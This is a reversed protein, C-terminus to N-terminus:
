ELLHIWEDLLRECGYWNDPSAFMSHECDVNLVEAGAFSAACVPTVGDGVVNAEGCVAAYSLGAFVQAFSGDGFSRGHVGTGALCVSHHVLHSVDCQEQVFRLIGRTQDVSGEPPPLHPTGLTVLASISPPDERLALYARAIWGGASHGVLNLAPVFDNDDTDDNDVVLEAIAADILSFYWDLFPLPQLKGQWYEPTFFGRANLLWNWRQVQVIAVRAHGRARLSAALPLYDFHSNGLGPLILIPAHSPPASSTVSPIPPVPHTSPTPAPTCSRAVRWSSPLSLPSRRTSKNLRYHPVSPIAAPVTPSLFAAPATVHHAPIVSPHHHRFAPPTSPLPMPRVPLSTHYTEAADTPPHKIFHVDVTRIKYSAQTASHTRPSAGPQASIAIACRHGYPHGRTRM